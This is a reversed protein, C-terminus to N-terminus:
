RTIVLKSNMKENGISVEIFYVGSKLDKTSIRTKPSELIGELVKKGDMGFIKFQKSNTVQQKDNPIEIFVEKTSPNPYIDFNYKDLNCVSLPNGIIIDDLFISNNFGHYRFCIRITQGVFSVLSINRLTWNGTFYDISIPTFTSKTYDSSVLVSYLVPSLTDESCVMYQLVLDSNIINMPPSVLLNDETNGSISYASYSGHYIPNSPNNNLFWSNGDLNNDIMEWGSPPFVNEEFDEIWPYTSISQNIPNVVCIESADSYGTNCVAKIYYAYIKSSDLFYLPYVNTDILLQTGTGPTFGLTDFELLWSNENGAPQWSLMASTASLNYYTLNIPTPCSDNPCNTYYSFNNNINCEGILDNGFTRISFNCNQYAVNQVFVVDIQSSDCLPIDHIISVGNQPFNSYFIERGNETVLINSENEYNTTVGSNNDLRFKYICKENTDCIDTIFDVRFSPQSINGNGYDSKIYINYKTNPTLGSLIITDNGSQLTTGNGVQFGDIGYELIWNSEISAPSWKVTVEQSSVESINIIAPFPYNEPIKSGYIEFCLGRGYTNISISKNEFWQNNNYFLSNGTNYENLITITVAREESSYSDLKWELWYKGSTLVLGSTNCVTKVVPNRYSQSDSGRITGSFYSSLLLNSTLDGWVVNSGNQEPLGDWIRLYIGYVESNTNYSSVYHSTFFAISDINWQVDNIIFDDALKTNLSNINVDFYRNSKSWNFGLYGGNPHTIFPGNSYLLSQASTFNIILLSFILTLIYTKM